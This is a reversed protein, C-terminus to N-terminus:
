IRKPVAKYKLILDFLIFGKKCIVLGKMDNIKKREIMKEINSWSDDDKIKLMTVINFVDVVGENEDNSSKENEEGVAGEDVNVPLLQECDELVGM